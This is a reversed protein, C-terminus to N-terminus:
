KNDNAARVEDMLRRHKKDLESIEEPTKAYVEELSWLSALPETASKDIGKLSELLWKEAKYCDQNLPGGKLKEIGKACGGNLYYMGLRLQANHEGGNSAKLLWEAGRDENITVGLGESYLLAIGFQSLADGAKAEPMWENFATTFDGKKFAAFGEMFGAWASASAAICCVIAVIQTIRKM